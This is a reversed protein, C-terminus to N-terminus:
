RNERVGKKTVCRRDHGVNSGYLELYNAQQKAASKAGSGNVINCRNFKFTQLNTSLDNAKRIDRSIAIYKYLDAPTPPGTEQSPIAVEAITLGVNSVGM